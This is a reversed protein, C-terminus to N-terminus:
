RVSSDQGTFELNRYGIYSRKIKGLATKEFPTDRVIIKNVRKYGPLNKNIKMLENELYNEPDTIKEKSIFEQNTLVEAVLQVSNFKNKQAYILVEEILRSKAFVAELEEPSVNEGNDLIILNKKRGTIYLYGAEIYGIDGTKFYGDCMVAQTAEPDDYYGKMINKGSALIEGDVIKVKCFNDDIKGVSDLRIDSYRNCSIVPSCETIGYGNMVVIGMNYFERIIESEVSAGGTIVTTLNGGFLEHVEEFLAKRIDIGKSLMEESIQLSYRVKEEQKKLKATMWIKKRFMYLVSPVVVLISPQFRQISEMVYKAGKGICIPYGSYIPGQINATIEFMHYPPLIPVTCTRPPSDSVIMHSYVLNDCINGHTLIVGKSKATTGSTYVIMAIDNEAVITPLEQARKGGELLGAISIIESKEFTFHAIVDPVEAIVAEIKTQIDVSCVIMKIDTRKIIDVIAEVGWEHNIPVTIMASDMVAYYAIIWEYCLEGIIAMKIKKYPLSRFYVSVSQIDQKLDMYSKLVIEDNQNIYKIATKEQYQNASRKILEETTRVRDTLINNM